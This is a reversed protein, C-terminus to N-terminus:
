FRGLFEPPILKMLKTLKLFPILGITGDFVFVGRKKRFFVVAELRLREAEARKEEAAAQSLALLGPSRHGVRLLQHHFVFICHLDAIGLSETDLFCHSFFMHIMNSIVQFLFWVVWGIPKIEKFFFLLRWFLDLIQFWRKKELGGMQSGVEVKGSGVM